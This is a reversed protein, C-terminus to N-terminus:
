VERVKVDGTASVEVVDSPAAVNLTIAEGALKFSGIRQAVFGFHDTASGVTGRVRGGITISAITSFVTADDGPSATFVDNGDAFDINDTNQGSGGVLGDAGLNRVGAVLSSAIWDGGVVVAGIQADSDFLTSETDFGGHLIANAVSGGITIKGFAVHPQPAGSDVRSEIRVPIGDVGRISGVVAFAGLGNVVILPATANGGVISGGVSLTGIADGDIGGAGDAAGGRLDGRITLKVVDNTALSGARTVAGGFVSGGILVSDADASVDLQGAEVDFGGFISGNLVVSKIRKGSDVIVKGSGGGIGGRIDGKILVAAVDVANETDLDLGGSDAGSGGIVSGEITLKSFADDARLFGSEVGSGGIISGRIFIAAPAKGENQVDIQGSDDGDGGRISGGIFIPGSTPDASGDGDVVGSRDGDGGIVDGGIRLAGFGANALIKGSDTGDGALDGGLTFSGIKGGSFFRGGGVSGAAFSNGVIRGGITVSGVDGGIAVIGTSDGPGGRLDGGLKFTKVKGTIEVQGGLTATPIAVILDVTGGVINGRIDVADVDGGVFVGGSIANGSGGIVDGLILLSGIKGTSVSGAENGSGGLISGTRLRSISLADIQASNEGTGGKVIGGIFISKVNGSNISATGPAGGVLDGGVFISSLSDTFIGASNEGSSSSAILSGRVVISTGEATSLDLLASRQGGGARLDGGVFVNKTGSTTISGSADTSNGIMSGRVVLAGVAGATLHGGDLSGGITISKAAGVSLSGAAATASFISGGILVTGVDGVGINGSSTGSFLDSFISGRVVISGVPANNNEIKGTDVTTGARIDGGVTISGVKGPFFRGSGIGSGGLLSGKLVFSGVDGGTSSISGSDVGTGGVMDGGVFISGIKQGNTALRGTILSGGIKLSGFGDALFTANLMDTRVFFSGVGGTLVSDLSGGAAQTNTGLLAISRVDLSKVATGAVAAGALIRGLDGDITVKGLDRATGGGVASSADIFGVATVGDGGPGVRTATVTLDTGAFVPNLSLDIKQLQRPVDAITNFVLVNAAALDADTGKSTKVTVKDGDTDTFTFVAAPAIRTELPEINMLSIRSSSTASIPRSRPATNAAGVPNDIVVMENSSGFGGDPDQVGASMSSAYSGGVTLSVLDGDMNTYTFIAAPAIRPELHPM